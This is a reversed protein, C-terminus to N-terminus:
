MTIFINVFRYLMIEFVNPYIEKWYGEEVFYLCQTIGYGCAVSRKGYSKYFKSNRKRHIYSIPRNNLKTNINEIYKCGDKFGKIHTFYRSTPNKM